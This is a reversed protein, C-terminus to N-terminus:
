FRFLTYWQESRSDYSQHNYDGGGEGRKIKFMILKM